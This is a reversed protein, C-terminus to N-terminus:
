GDERPPSERPCEPVPDANTVTHRKKELKLIHGICPIMEEEHHTIYILSTETREGIGEMLALVRERNAGDLGQCPEDLILLEPSKVMARAILALRKEGYSTRTFLRDARDAMGLIELWRDAIGEQERNPRRYLGISDFFGSLVVERVHVPKRYRLQLEPSVVGIRRRIEWISEGEGRRKGFLYVENAYVQLNDGTILSLLTSKGSGNPGVVAWNEGRRVTWDLGDFVVYEGYAVHLNRMEVLPDTRTEPNIGRTPVGQPLTDRHELSLRIEPLTKAKGTFRRIQAPTLVEERTGTKAVRGNQILLVHSIGPIVEEPRQAVLIIQTGEQMLKTVAAALAPRSGADLGAFPDDLILIKPAPLLARAILLKRNEGNSLTRIGHGLLPRLDLIEVLRDLTAPDEDKGRLLLEGATLEHGRGSFFREDERLEERALIEEQLEFSVYGIRKGEAEPDHRILKGRVHPCDGQIARALASKGSGNAGLIAWNEGTRIEWSTGPLLMRDGLRLTVRELTILPDNKRHLRLDL